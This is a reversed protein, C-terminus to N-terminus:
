VIRSQGCVTASLRPPQTRCDIELFKQRNYICLNQLWFRVSIKSGELPVYYTFKGTKCFSDTCLCRVDDIYRGMQDTARDEILIDATLM